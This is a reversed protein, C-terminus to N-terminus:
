LMISASFLEERRAVSRLMGDADFWRLMELMQPNGAVVSFSGGRGTIRRAFERLLPLFASPLVSDRTFELAVRRCGADLAEKLYPRLEGPSSMAGIRDQARLITYGRQRVWVVQM